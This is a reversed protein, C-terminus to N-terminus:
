GPFDHPGTSSILSSSCPVVNYIRVAQPGKEVESLELRSGKSSKSLTTFFSFGLTAIRMPGKRSM